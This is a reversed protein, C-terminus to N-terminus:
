RKCIRRRKADVCDLLAAIEELAIGSFMKTQALDEIYEMM